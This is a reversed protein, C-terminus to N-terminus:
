RRLVLKTDGVKIEQESAVDSESTKEGQLDFVSWVIRREGIRILLYKDDVSVFNEEGNSKLGIKRRMVFVGYGVGGDRVMISRGVMRVAM